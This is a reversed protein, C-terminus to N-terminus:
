RLRDAGAGGDDDGTDEEHDRGMHLKLLDIAHVLDEAMQIDLTYREILLRLRDIKDLSAHRIRDISSWGGVEWATAEERLTQCRELLRCARGPPTSAYGARQCAEEMSAGALMALVYTDERESM